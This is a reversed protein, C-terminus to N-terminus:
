RAWRVKSQKVERRGHKVAVGFLAGGDAHMCVYQLSDCNHVLVGDALFMPVEDVTINYVVDGHPLSNVAVVQVVPKNAATNIPKLRRLVGRVFDLRTTWAPIWAHKPAAAPRVINQIKTIQYQKMSKTVLLAYELNKKASCLLRRVTSAIGSGAKKLLMGHKLLRSFVGYTRFANKVARLEPKGTSQWITRLPLAHSTIWSMTACMGTSITYRIDQLYQAMSKKGYISTCLRRLAAGMSIKQGFINTAELALFGIATMSSVTQPENRKIDAHPAATNAKVKGLGGRPRPSHPEVLQVFGNSLNQWVADEEVILTAYQLADARIVCGDSTIFPHDATCTITKGNSLTVAVLENSIRNGTFVIPKSGMPTVVLDGVILTQIPKDGDPTRVMTGAVFCVDSFPHNKEPTDAADGKTNIRYRYKSMFAQILDKCSADIQLGPKGGVSRTLFQEVAAIRAAIGNTRAPIVKFNEMRLLDAVNKEDNGRNMGAPDIVVLVKAAPFNNSLTPKLVERIFRLAGMDVAHLSQFIFLRGEYGLQGIVAAPNLGTCDFGVILPNNSTPNYRLPAAPVHTQKDFSRFVPKGALSKGFKGHIYVDIWDESKGNALNTYYDPDLWETWDAEPSIGSPQITVSVNDPPSTLLDEWYTDTDPPNSMGWLHANSRGDETRCGVGNMKKNPYRSLRGQLATYIDPNIERFEDLIGFSAQLSLLRKVDNSDDLGRFLVECEVDSFRLIFKYESKMYIGAEQDPFWSLFDPISTDRLQERTNRVWVARSRRIGDRCPAMQAAHYAIKMIGATTKTSNHHVAGDITIYNHTGDVQLDWYIEKVEKRTISVIPWYSTTLSPAQSALALDQISQALGHLKNQLRTTWRCLRAVLGYGEAYECSEASTHNAEDVSHHAGHPVCGGTQQQYACLTSRTHALLEAQLASLQAGASHAFQLTCTQAGTGSPVFALVNEELCRALLGCLRDSVGYGDQYGAHTQSSHRASSLSTSPCSVASTQLQAGSCTKVVDGARLEAVRRYVGDACLLQHSGSADFEGQPTVVRYLYDTGKPFAISAQSLQYRGTTENWSLVRMPRTIDAIPIPGEETMILTSGALCGIPGLVLSIFKESVFFPLLSKPPAYQISETM